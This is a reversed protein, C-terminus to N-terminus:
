LIGNCTAFMEICILVCSRMCACMGAWVCVCVCVCLYVSKGKAKQKKASARRDPVQPDISNVTMSM